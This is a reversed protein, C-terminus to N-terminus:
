FGKQELRQALDEEEQAIREEEEKEEQAIREEEERTFFYKKTVKKKGFLSPRYETVWRGSVIVYNVMGFNMPGLHGCYPCIGGNEHIDDHSLDHQCSECVKEGVYKSIDTGSETVGGFFRVLWKWLNKM